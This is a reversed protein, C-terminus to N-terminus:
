HWVCHMEFSFPDSKCVMRLVLLIILTRGVIGHAGYRVDGSCLFCFIVDDARSDLIDDIDIKLKSIM